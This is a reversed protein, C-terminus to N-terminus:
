RGGRAHRGFPICLKKMRNRLTQPHVGLLEAAGGPGAVKGDARKLAIEIHQRVAEDLSAITGAGGDDDNQGRVSRVPDIDAFTLPKGQCLILSREVANELERVNGPWDYAMLRDMTNTEVTPVGTLGLRRSKRRMFHYVLAPIDAKREALSPVEIPFVNLRYLLDSRFAGEEAMTNLNRHTAAVVRIDLELTESGGVREFEGNQLVRLLRTQASPSLEAVEDLL